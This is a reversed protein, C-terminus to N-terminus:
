GATGELDFANRATIRARVVKGLRPLVQAEPVHVVVAGDVEPAHPYGRGIYTREGELHEEILVDLSAGVYRDLAAATIPVQAREIQSRRESAVKARVRGPLAAAATGDERSYEFVGVWDLRAASQFSLLDQFDREEEGPFGILFTSRIVAEPLAARIQEVLALYTAANGRRGMAGLIRESAHQFPLDFYPVLRPDAGAQDLLGLPFHDPHIYLLRLWFDGQIALIREILTGLEAPGRDLGYSGVDQAVLNIERLGRAILGRIETVIEPVERSRLDGRILPIACYTCRNDCGEAIKVYVSGPYSLLDRRRVARPRRSVAVRPLSLLRRVLAVVDGPDRNGVVGDLEPLERELEATYREALCGALIIRAGPHRARMALATEISERKAEVIFGCSNVIILDAGEPAAALTLGAERLRAIMQEADVQNKACGLNQVHFTPAPKM